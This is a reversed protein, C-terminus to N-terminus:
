AWPQPWWLSRSSPWCCASWARSAIQLILSTAELVAARAEYYAMMSHADARDPSPTAKVMVVLVLMSLSVCIGRTRVSWRALCWWAPELEDAM